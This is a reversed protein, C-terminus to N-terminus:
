PRARYLLTRERARSGHFAGILAGIAGEGAALALMWAARNTEVTLAGQTAGLTAGILFGRRANKGITKDGLRVVSVVSPRVLEVPSDAVVVVLRDRDASRLSGSVTQGGRNQVELRTGEAVSLMAAWREDDTQPSPAVRPTFRQASPATQALAAALMAILIRQMRNPRSLM